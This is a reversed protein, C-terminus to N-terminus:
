ALPLVSLIRERLDTCPKLLCLDAGLSKIEDVYQFSATIVFVTLKPYTKKAHLLLDRGQIEGVLRWDLILLDPKFNEMLEVARGGDQAAAVIYDMGFAEQFAETIRPEDDVILIKKM